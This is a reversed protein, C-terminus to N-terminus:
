KNLERFAEEYDNLFKEYEFLGIVVDVRAQMALEPNGGFYGAKALRFAILM